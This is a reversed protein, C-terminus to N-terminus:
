RGFPSQKGFSKDLNERTELLFGFYVVRLDLGGKMTEQFIQRFHTNNPNCLSNTITSLMWTDIVRDPYFSLSETHVEFYIKIGVRWAQYMRGQSLYLVLLQRLLHPVPQRAIHWLGSNITLRLADKIEDESAAENGKNFDFTTGSVSFAEAQLAALRKQSTEDGTQVAFRSLQKEHRKILGDAVKAFTPDLEEGPKLFQDEVHVAGTSCKTCQCTFFYQERLEAQRVSTPNTVDVYKVFIEEGQKIPKIARLLQQPQNFIAVTNPQCSHNASCLIPDFGIGLKTDDLASSLQLTNSMINFFYAKAIANSDM